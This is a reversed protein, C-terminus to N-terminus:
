LGEEKFETKFKQKKLRSLARKAENEDKFRFSIDRTMTELHTGAGAEPRGVIGRIKSDLTMGFREASYFATVVFSTEKVTM